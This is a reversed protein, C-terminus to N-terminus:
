KEIKRKLKNIEEDKKKKKEGGKMKILRQLANFTHMRWAENSERLEKVVKWLKNIQEDKEKLQVYIVNDKDHLKKSLKNEQNITLSEVVKM